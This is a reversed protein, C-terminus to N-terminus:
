IVNLNNRVTTVTHHLLSAAKSTSMLNQALASYVLSEFRETPPESYRSAVVEDSFAKSKNKRICFSTYRKESMDGLDRLKHVMADISIGYTMQLAILEKLSIKQLNSIGERLRKTPILMENAFAHCMKERVAPTITEDMDSNFLLHALEHVGTFRQREANNKNSNLVIIYHTNNVIGSVGDFGDPGETLIVKIHNDELLKQVNAIADDGIHWAARVAQAREVMDEITNIKKYEPKKPIQPEIGLLEEVELYREIEDQISVKLAEIDKSSVGAKKRFSIDMEGMDFKFPRILFDLPVSLSEALAIMVTSNPMMKGSEYKSIAQKTVLGGMKQSLADMSLKAKIRAQKLRKAFTELQTM